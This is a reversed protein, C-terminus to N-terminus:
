TWQIRYNECSLHLLSKCSFLSPINFDDEGECTRFEYRVAIHGIHLASLMLFYDLLLLLTKWKCILSIRMLASSM